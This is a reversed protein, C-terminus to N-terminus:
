RKYLFVEKGTDSILKGFHHDIEHQFVISRNPDDLIEDVDVFNFGKVISITKGKVRVHDWREVEFHRLHGEPSRISLCGELSFIRKANTSPEYECNVYYTYHNPGEKIIFLKWPLGVQVASIGIGKEKECIEQMELCVKLLHIPNDLLVDTIEDAKPIDKEKVLALM